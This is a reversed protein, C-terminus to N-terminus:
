VVAQALETKCSRLECRVAPEGRTALQALRTLAQHFRIWCLEGLADVAQRGM